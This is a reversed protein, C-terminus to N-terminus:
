GRALAALLGAVMAFVCYVGFPRLGNRQLVGIFWRISFFGSIGSSIIGVLAPLANAGAIGESLMDPIQFVIAGAIIPISLLFSFNAAAARDLGLRMGAGITSGSRSIGPLVSVAQAIGVGLADRQTMAGIARLNPENEAVRTETSLLWYGTIGLFLSVLVPRQFADAVVAEAIVGVIVAPVTGIAVFRLMRQDHEGAEKFSLATRTLARLRERYFWTVAVLTGIHTAVSFALGPEGWGIIFPVLTLHGSSSVPIFETLGQVLGLVLAELIGM